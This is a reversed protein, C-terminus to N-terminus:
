PKRCRWEHALDSDQWRPSSTSSLRFPPGVMYIWTWQGVMYIWTWKHQIALRM